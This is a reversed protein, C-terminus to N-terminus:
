TSSTLTLRTLLTLFAGNRIFSTMPNAHDLPQTASRYKRVPPRSTDPMAWTASIRSRMSVRSSTIGERVPLVARSIAPQRVKEPRGAFDGWVVPLCRGTFVYFMINTVPESNLEQM